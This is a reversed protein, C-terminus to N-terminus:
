KMNQIMGSGTDDIKKLTSSTTTTATTSTTGGAVQELDADSLEDSRPAPIERDRSTGTQPQKGM